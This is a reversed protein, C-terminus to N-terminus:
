FLLLFNKMFIEGAGFNNINNALNRKDFRILWECVM